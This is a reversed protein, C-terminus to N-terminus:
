LARVDLRGGGCDALPQGVALLAEPESDDVRVIVVEVQELMREFEMRQRDVVDPVLVLPRLELFIGAVEEGNQEAGLQQISASHLELLM